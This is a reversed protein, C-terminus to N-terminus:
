MEKRKDRHTNCKESLEYEKILDGGFYTCISFSRMICNKWSGRNSGEESTWINGQM